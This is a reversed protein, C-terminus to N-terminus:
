ASGKSAHKQRLVRALFLPNGVVYRRWLRGPELALRFVWELRLRRMWIPARPIAGSLFDFLAGVAVALTCHDATMNRDIWMEQRPVGMAVLLVDPRLAKLRELIRAEERAAFFGDHVVIYDHQPARRGLEAAAKRVNDEVAGLLAVRLSGPTRALFAPIFDTGNLNAPFSAGYLLKSAIDIGIGDPLVLFRDLAQKFADDSAAINASHANLFGIPTFRRQLALGGLLALAEDWDVAVVETGLINRSVPREVGPPAHVTM